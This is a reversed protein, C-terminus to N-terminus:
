KKVLTGEIEVKSSANAKSLAALVKLLEASAKDGFKTKYSLSYFQYMGISLTAKISGDKIVASGIQPSIPMSGTQPVHINGSERFEYRAVKGKNQGEFYIYGKHVTVKTLKGTGLVADGFNIDEFGVKGIGELDIDKPTVRVLSITYADGDAPVVIADGGPNPTPTPTPKPEDNKKGCSTAVGLLLGGLLLATTWKKINM